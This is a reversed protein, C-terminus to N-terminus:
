DIIIRFEVRRNRKKGKLTNNDAIPKESGFGLTTIRSSEIGQQTLFQAITEARALSLAKNKQSDGENSTHGSIELKILSNEQLFSTLRDLVLESDQVLYPTSQRFQINGFTVLDRNQL